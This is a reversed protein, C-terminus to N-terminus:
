RKYRAKDAFKDYLRASYYIIKYKRLYFGDVVENIDSDSIKAVKSNLVQM